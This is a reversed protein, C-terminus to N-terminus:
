EVKIKKITYYVCPDKGYQEQTYKEAQEVTKFYKAIWTNGGGFSDEWAEVGYIYMSGSM